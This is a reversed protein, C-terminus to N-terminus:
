STPPEIGGPEVMRGRKALQLAIWCRLAVLGL